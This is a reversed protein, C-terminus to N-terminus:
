GEVVRASQLRGDPGTVCLIHGGGAVEIRALVNQGRVPPDPSFIVSTVHMAPIQDFVDSLASNALNEQDLISKM